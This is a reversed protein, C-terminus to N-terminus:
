RQEAANKRMNRVFADRDEAGFLASATIVCVAGKSTVEAITDTNVGGDVAITIDKGMSEICARAETIKPLVSEIMSQGAFGPNVTMILIEDLTDAVYPLFTLATSPNVAVGARAGCKRIYQLSRHLHVSTESHVLITHAGSTVCEEIYRDANEVMLHATFPMDTLKKITRLMLPGFTLNPVFVGDMLDFHLSDVGAATISAIEERLRTFDASLISASIEIKM